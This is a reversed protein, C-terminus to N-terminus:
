PRRYLYSRGSPKFGLRDYLRRAPENGADTQVSVAEIQQDKLHRLIELILLKAHGKRRHEPPVRVDLLGARNLGDVRDFGIMEWTLAHALENGQRDLLRFRTPRATGIALADWWRDLVIDERVELRTQRRLAILRPEPLSTPLGLLLYELHETTAATRYGAREVAQRFADHTELIGSFESGGYLGWYFPNLPYMGGAYFVTTGVQRLRAEAAEILRQGLEDQAQSPEVVLMALAGMELDLRHSPGGPEAPGHGVHVFGLLRNEPGEAVLFDEKRFDVRSFLVADLEHPEVPVVVSFRPMGRNWLGTIAPIDDNRFPRIQLLTVERRNPSPRIPYIHYTM